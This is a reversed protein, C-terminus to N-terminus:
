RCPIAESRQNFKAARRVAESVEILEARLSAGPSYIKIEM